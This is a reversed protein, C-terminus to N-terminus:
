ESVGFNRQCERIKLKTERIEDNTKTIMHRYVKRAKIVKLRDKGHEMKNIKHKLTLSSSVLLSINIRLEVLKKVLETHQKNKM